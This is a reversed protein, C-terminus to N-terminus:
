KLLHVTTLLLAQQSPSYGDWVKRFCLELFKGKCMSALDNKVDAM